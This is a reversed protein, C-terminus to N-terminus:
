KSAEVTQLIIPKAIVPRDDCGLFYGNALIKACTMVHAVHPLGSEPDNDEGNLFATLHRLLSDSASMVPQGQTWNGAAYKQAGYEWVRSEAITVAESLLNYSLLAKGENYRSAHESM